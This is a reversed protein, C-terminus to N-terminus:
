DPSINGSHDYDFIDFCEKMKVVDDEKFNKTAYKKPDFGQIVCEIGQEDKKSIILCYFIFIFIFLAIFFDYIKLAIFTTYKM